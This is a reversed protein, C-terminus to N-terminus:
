FHLYTLHGWHLVTPRDNYSLMFYNTIFFSFGKLQTLQFAKKNKYFCDFQNFLKKELFLFGM